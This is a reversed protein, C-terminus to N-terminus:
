FTEDPRTSNDLSSCETWVAHSVMGIDKLLAALRTGVDSADEGWAGAERYLHVALDNSLKTHRYFRIDLQDGVPGITEHIIDVLDQPSNGALCLHIIELIKM